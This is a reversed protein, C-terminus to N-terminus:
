QFEDVTPMELAWLGRECGDCCRRGQVRLCVRRAQALFCCSVTVPSDVYQINGEELLIERAKSCVDKVEAESIPECRRLQEIQRHPSCPHSSSGAPDRRRPLLELVSRDLDSVM